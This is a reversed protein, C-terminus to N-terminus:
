TLLALTRGLHVCFVVMVVLSTHCRTRYGASGSGINAWDQTLTHNDLEDARQTWTISPSPQTVSSQVSSVAQQSQTGVGQSSTTAVEVENDMTKSSKRPYRTTSVFTDVRSSTTSGFAVPETTTQVGTQPTTSKASIRLTTERNVNPGRTTVRHTSGSLITDTNPIMTTTTVRTTDANTTSTTTRETSLGATTTDQTTDARTVTDGQYTVDRIVNPVTANDHLELVRQAIVKVGAWMEEGVPVIQSAPLLFGFQGM